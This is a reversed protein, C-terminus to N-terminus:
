NIGNQFKTVFMIFEEEDDFNAGSKTISEKVSKPLIEFHQSDRYDFM